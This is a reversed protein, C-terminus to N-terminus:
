HVSELSETCDFSSGNGDSGPDGAEIKLDLPIIGTEVSLAFICPEVIFSSLSLPVFVMKLQLQIKLKYYSTM